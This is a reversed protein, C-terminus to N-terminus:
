TPEVWTPVDVVADALTPSVPPPTNEMVNSAVANEVPSPYVKM